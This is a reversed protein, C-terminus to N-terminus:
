ILKSFRMPMMGAKACLDRFQASRFFAFEVERSATAPDLAALEGDAYGPHCMILPRKGPAILYRAFDAAYDRQADFASYGSFSDNLMFGRARVGAAFPRTLASVLLAKRMEVGRTTIARIHDAANRLYPKQAPYRASLVDALVHRIGPMAHIHQHGDVYDPMTGMAQEFADLQATIEAAIEARPLRGTICRALLPALKPLAGGPALSPMATLPAGCTLTLHLGLDARGTFAALDKAGERWFPRNTMAGTATIRGEELLTLIARSVGRTIAYDDAALIFGRPSATPTRNM